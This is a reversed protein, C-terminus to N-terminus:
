PDASCTRAQAAEALGWNRAVELLERGSESDARFPPIAEPVSGLPGLDPTSTSATEVLTLGAM